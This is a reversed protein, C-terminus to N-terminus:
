KAGMKVAEARVGPDNSHDAGRLGDNAREASWSAIRRWDDASEARLIEDVSPGGAIDDLIARLGDNEAMLRIAVRAPGSPEYDGREWHRVTRDGHAGMELARALGATSLGLQARAARLEDPTM